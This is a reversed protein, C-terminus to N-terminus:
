KKVVGTYLYVGLLLFVVLGAIMSGEFLGGIKIGEGLKFYTLIAVILGVLAGGAVMGSSMLMGKEMVGKHRKSGKPFKRQVLGRIAGGMFVALNLHVPLYIGVGFALVPLGILRAGLGLAAGIFILTWPLNGNFIGRVVMSMLTAQPAPLEASGFGYTTDLINLLFGIVLATVLTGIIEGLQQYKPTAGLLFGTKLDQSMDGAAALAICVIAGAGLSAMIGATGSIGAMRVILATLLLTAITMGSVPNNSSGVLGVIRSSVTVFFFSFVVVSVAALIRGIMSDIPLIFLMAIAILLSGIVVVAGPLDQQTRIDIGVKKLSFTELVRKFSRFITPLAEIFSIIGGFAVAGAGIYRIYNNWLDWPGMDSIPMESPFIASSEAGFFKILPIICLWSIISGTLMASSIRMGIIFGVGMLSPLIDVGLMAGSFGSIACEISEPFLKLGNQAFRYLGAVGMATFLTRASGGGVEGAVLVEACATGEPFPLKGHEEVMVARRLPIMMLLGLTGGLGAMLTVTILKPALGLMYLAPITFIVGAAISEGASGITQVMNNELITGRRLLGRLIGMSIVAAPISASVTMGVKLGLYANAAGLIVALIVGLVIARVSFEKMRRQSPVYPPYDGGDMSEYALPSLKKKEESM